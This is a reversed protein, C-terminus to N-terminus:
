REGWALRERERRKAIECECEDRWTRDSEEPRCLRNAADELVLDEKLQKAWARSKFMFRYCIRPTKAEYPLIQDIHKRWYKPDHDRIHVVAVRMPGFTERAACLLIALRDACCFGRFGREFLQDASYWEGAKIALKRHSRPRSMLGTHLGVSHLATAAKM